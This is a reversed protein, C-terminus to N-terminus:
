LILRGFDGRMCSLPALYCGPGVIVDGILVATPHVFATPHIVPRVGDIEYCQAM